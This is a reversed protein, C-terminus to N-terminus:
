GVGGRPVLRLGNFLQDFAEFGPQGMLEALTPVEPMSALRKGSGMALPRLTGAKIHQAAAPVSVLSLQVQGGLTDLGYDPGQLAILAANDSATAAATDLDAQTPYLDGVSAATLLVMFTISVIWVPLRVRDRRLVFRVLTWTGTLSHGQAGPTM